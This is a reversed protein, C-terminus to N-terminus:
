APQLSDQQALQRCLAAIERRLAQNEEAIEQVRRTIAALSTLASDIQIQLSAVTEAAATLGLQDSEARDQTAYWNELQAQEETSLAEGRTARNHLQKGLEDPVM